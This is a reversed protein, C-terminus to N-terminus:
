RQARGTLNSLVVMTDMLRVVTESPLTCLLFPPESLSNGAWPALVQAWSQRDSVLDMPRPQSFRYSDPM